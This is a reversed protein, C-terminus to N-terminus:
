VSAMSIFFSWKSPTVPSQVLEASSEILDWFSVKKKKKSEEFSEKSSPYPFIIAWCVAAGEIYTLWCSGSNVLERGDPSCTPGAPGLHPISTLCGTGDQSAPSCCITLPTGQLATAGGGRLLFWDQPVLTLHNASTHDCTIELRKSLFHQHLNTNVKTIAHWSQLRAGAQTCSTAM